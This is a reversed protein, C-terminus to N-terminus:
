ICYQKWGLILLTSPISLSLFSSLSLKRSMSITSIWVTTIIYDFVTNTLNMNQKAQNASLSQIIIHGAM